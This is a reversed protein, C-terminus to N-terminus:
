GFGSRAQIKIIITSVLLAFHSTADYRSGGVMTCSGTSGYM